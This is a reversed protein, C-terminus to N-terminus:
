FYVVIELIRITVIINLLLRVRQEKEIGGALVCEDLVAMIRDTSPFPRKSCWSEPLELAFGSHALQLRALHRQLLPYHAPSTPTAPLYSLATILSFTENM